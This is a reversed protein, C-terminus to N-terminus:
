YRGFAAALTLRVPRPDPRALDPHYVNWGLKRLRKLYGDALVAPLLAALAGRPVRGREARAEALLLAAMDALEEAVAQVAPHPQGAMVVHPDIGRAALDAAPLSVRRQAAHFATARLLGIMAWATGVREAAEAAPAESAGLLAAALRQVSGGTARAYALFATRDAPPAEEMDQERADLLADFPARPLEHRRVAEALPGAVPHPPPAADTEYLAAIQDRWWQLRILGMMPETVKERIGAVDANFAYLAFLDERRRVPAFLATVFRDRDLRRVSEAAASLPPTRPATSPDAM